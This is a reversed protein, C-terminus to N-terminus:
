GVLGRFIGGWWRDMWGVVGVGVGCERKGM